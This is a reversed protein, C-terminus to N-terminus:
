KLPAAVALSQSGLIFLEALLKSVDVTNDNSLHVSSGIFHVVGIYINATERSQVEEGRTLIGLDHGIITAAFHLVKNIEQFVIGTSGERQIAVGAILRLELITLKKPRSCYIWVKREKGAYAGCDM